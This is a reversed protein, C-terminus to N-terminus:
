WFRRLSAVTWHSPIEGLGVRGSDKMSVRPDLGRTVTRDIIVQRQENLLSILKQKARIFHQIRSSAHDLFRVIAGQEEVPPVV